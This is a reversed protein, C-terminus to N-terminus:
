HPLRERAAKLLRSCVDGAPDFDVDHFCRTVDGRLKESQNAALDPSSASPGPQAWGASSSSTTGVPKEVYIWGFILLAISAPWIYWWLRYGRDIRWVASHLAFIRSTFPM